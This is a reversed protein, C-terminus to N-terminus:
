GMAPIMGVQQLLGLEDAQGWHEVVQGGAIRYIHTETWTVSKGTPPAALFHGTHTGRATIHVAVKDGDVLTDDVVPHVDPFASRVMAVLQKLGERGAVPRPAHDVYNPAVLEDASAMSGGGMVEAYLRRILARADTASM